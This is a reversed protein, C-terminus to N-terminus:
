QEDGRELAPSRASNVGVPRRSPRFTEARMKSRKKPPKRGRVKRWRGQSHIREHEGWLRSKRQGIRSKTKSSRSLHPEVTVQPLQERKARTRSGRFSSTRPGQEVRTQPTPTCPGQEVRSLRPDVTVPPAAQVQSTAVRVATWEARTRSWLVM